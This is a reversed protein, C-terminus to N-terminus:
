SNPPPMFGRPPLQIEEHKTVQFMESNGVLPCQKIYIAIIHKEAAAFAVFFIFLYFITKLEM